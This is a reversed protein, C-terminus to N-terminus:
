FRTALIPSKRAAFCRESLGGGGGVPEECDDFCAWVRVADLILVGMEADKESTEKGKDERGNSCRICPLISLTNLWPLGAVESFSCAGHSSRVDTGVAVAWGEVGQLLEIVSMRIRMEYASSVRREM